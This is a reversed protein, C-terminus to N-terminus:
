TAPNITRHTRKPGEGGPATGSLNRVGQTGIPEGGPSSGVSNETASLSQVWEKM